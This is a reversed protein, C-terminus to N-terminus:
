LSAHVYGEIQDLVAAGYVANGHTPDRWAAKILFGSEDVMTTPATLFGGGFLIANEQLVDSQHQWVVLRDAAPMIGFEAIADAYVGPMKRLYEEDPVPPPSQLQVFPGGIRDSVARFMALQWALTERMIEKFAAKPIFTRGSSPDTLTYPNPSNTFGIVSHSAGAMALFIPGAAKAQGIEQILANSLKAEGSAFSPRYQEDHLKIFVYPPRTEAERLYAAELAAVHSHGIVTIM